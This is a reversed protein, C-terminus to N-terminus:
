WESAVAASAALPANLQAEFSDPWSPTPLDTTSSTTLQINYATHQMNCARNRQFPALWNRSPAAPPKTSQTRDRPNNMLNTTQGLSNVPLM